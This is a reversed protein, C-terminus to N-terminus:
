GRRYQRYVRCMKNGQIVNYLNCRIAPKNQLILYQEGTYQVGIQTAVSTAVTACGSSIVTILM